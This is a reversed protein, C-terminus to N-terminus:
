IGGRRIDLGHLGPYRGGEPIRRRRREPLQANVEDLGVLMNVLYTINMFIFIISVVRLVVLVYMYM